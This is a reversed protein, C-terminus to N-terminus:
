STTTSQWSGCGLPVVDARRPDDPGVDAAQQGDEHDVAVLAVLDLQQLVARPRLEVGPDLRVGGGDARSSGASRTKQM